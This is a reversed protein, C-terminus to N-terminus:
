ALRHVARFHPSDEGRKGEDGAKDVEDRMREVSQDIVGANFVEGAGEHEESPEDYKHCHEDHNEDLEERLPSDPIKHNM